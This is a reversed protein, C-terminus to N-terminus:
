NQSYFIHSDITAVRRFKTSWSPAVATTHYFLTSDPVVGPHEGRRFDDYAAAALRASRNWSRKDKGMDSRGDCAFTFQCKFKGNEANQFIV